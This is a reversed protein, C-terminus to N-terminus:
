VSEASVKARMLRPRSICPPVGFAADDDGLGTPPAAVDSEHRTSAAAHGKMTASSPRSASNHQAEVCRERPFLPAQDRLSGPSREGGFLLRELEAIPRLHLNARGVVLGALRIDIM